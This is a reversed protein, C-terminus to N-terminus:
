GRDPEPEGSPRDEDGEKRPKEKAKDKAKDKEPKQRQPPEGYDSRLKALLGEALYREHHEPMKALQVVVLVGEEQEIVEVSGTTPEASSTKYEFLLYGNEADKETVKYGHDIRIFRLAGNFTQSKSYGTSHQVRARAPAVLTLSALVLGTAWTAFRHGARRTPGTRRPTPSVLM